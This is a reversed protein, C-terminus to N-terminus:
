NTNDTPYFVHEGDHGSGWQCQEIEFGNSDYLMANCQTM